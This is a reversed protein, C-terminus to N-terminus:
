RTRRLRWIVAAAVVGTAMGAVFALLGAPFEATTVHALIAEM